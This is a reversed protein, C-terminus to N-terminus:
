NLDGQRLETSLVIAELDSVNARQLMDNVSIEAIKNRSVPNNLRELDQKNFYDPIDIILQANIVLKNKGKM